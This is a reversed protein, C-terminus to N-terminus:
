ATAAPRPALVDAVPAVEPGETVAAMEITREAGPVPGTGAFAFHVRVTTGGRGRHVRVLDALEHVLHLGHGAGSPGPPRRGALVDPLFGRDEVQCALYEDTSWVTLLGQGGAHVITNVVLEQVVRRLDSIRAVPLRTRAAHDHVFRRAAGPGVGGSPGGGVIQIDADAPPPCLPGDFTAAVALPDAYHQSRWRREGAILVPHTRSADRVRREDLGATDYPCLVSAPADRLALNTLAEHEACVPYEDDTRGPWVPEGVIRVRASPHERVFATLVGGIIRGPNRGVRGMDALRVSAREQPSLADHVAGLNPEPVAVLVPEERELGERVFRLVGDLYEDHGAYLLAPHWLGGPREARDRVPATM